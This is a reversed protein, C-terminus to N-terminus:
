CFNAKRSAQLQLLLNNWSQKLRYLQTFFTHNLNMDLESSKMDFIVCKRRNTEIGLKESVFTFTVRPHLCYKVISFHIYEVPLCTGTNPCPQQCCDFTVKSASFMKWIHKTNGKFISRKSVQNGHTKFPKILISFCRKVSSDSPSKMKKNIGANDCVWGKEMTVNFM